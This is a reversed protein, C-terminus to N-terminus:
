PKTTAWEKVTVVLHATPRGEEGIMIESPPAGALGLQGRRLFPMYFMLHPYWQGVHEGHPGDYLDQEPSMMWSMAHKTPLAYKRAEFGATITRAIVEETAPHITDFTKGSVSPVWKGDIFCQSQRVKPRPFKKTSPKETVTAM